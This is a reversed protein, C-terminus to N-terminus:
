EIVVLTEGESVRAGEAVLVEKVTGDKPSKVENEMKMAELLLLVAGRAVTDGAKVKVSTIRGTMAAAVGGPVAARAAPAAGASGARQSPAQRRAAGAVPSADYTVTFPRYDVQIEMGSEREGEGPAQIRYPVGGAWVTVYGQEDRKKIPFEQGDVLVTEGRVEVEYTRGGITFKAM